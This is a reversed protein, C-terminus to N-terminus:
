QLYHIKNNTNNYEVKIFINGLICQNPNSIHPTIEPGKKIQETLAEGHRTDRHIHLLYRKLALLVEPDGPVDKCM